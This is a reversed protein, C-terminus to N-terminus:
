IVGGHTRKPSLHSPQDLFWLREWEEMLMRLDDSTFILQRTRTAPDGSYLPILCGTQSMAACMLVAAWLYRSM